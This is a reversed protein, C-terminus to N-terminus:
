SSNHQANHISQTCIQNHALNEQYILYKTNKEIYLIPASHPRIMILKNLKKKLCFVAYSIRMLSQLESTHEESRPTSSSSSRTSLSLPRARDTAWWTKRTASRRPSVWDSLPFGPPENPGSSWSCCTSVSVGGSRSRSSRPASSTRHRSFARAAASSLDSSCVDSSWDSIRMDYATKQKFFFFFYLM